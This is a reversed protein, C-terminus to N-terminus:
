FPTDPHEDYRDFGYPTERIMDIQVFIRELHHALNDAPDFV